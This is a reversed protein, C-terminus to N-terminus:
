VMLNVSLDLKTVRKFDSLTMYNYLPQMNTTEWITLLDASLHTPSLTVLPYTGQVVVQVDYLAQRIRGSSIEKREQRLLYQIYRHFCLALFCMAFHGEIHDDTWVFVPRAELDSKTVRFSEEIRWLGGYIKKVEETSISMDNTIIAYYGDFKAQWAIREEDLEADQYDAPYEIYQSRGRKAQARVKGPTALDDKVKELIRERDAQDKRARDAQWTLHVAVPISDTTYMPRRGKKIPLASREEDTLLRRAQLIHTLRKQKGVMEGQEDHSITWGAPDFVLEQLERPAKKLSYSMVFDHGQQCLYYLNDKSNLGRDAVVVLKEMRYRKQLDAIATELTTQDMTNGPFLTYSIPMGQEDILLGMVVQVESNKHDKSFGFLRLEGARVSEFAYTTVDYYAVPGKRGTKAEFQRCLHDILAEQCDKFADLAEYYLDLYDSQFGAYSSLEKQSSLVSTPDMIRHFVLGKMAAILRQQKRCPLYKEFFSSLKLDQWIKELVAHGFSFSPLSDDVSTIQQLPCSLSIPQKGKKKEETRRKAEEKLEQIINPNEALMKEYNGVTEIVKTTKKRTNPIRYQEVFQIVRYKGTGSITVYM